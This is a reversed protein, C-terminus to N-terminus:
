AVGFFTLGDDVGDIKYGNGGWSTEIQDATKSVKGENFLIDQLTPRFYHVAGNTPDPYTGSLISEAVELDGEYPDRATSAWRGTQLGFKGRGSARKCRTLLGVIDGNSVNVAVWAVAAQTAQDSSAEESHINRALSYAEVSVERGLTISAQAALDEPSEVIDGNENVTGKTLRKGKIGTFYSLYYFPATVVSASPRYFFAIAGGIAGALLAFKTNPNLHHHTAPSRHTARSRRNRGM